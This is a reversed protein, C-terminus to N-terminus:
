KEKGVGDNFYKLILTENRKKNVVQHPHTYYSSYIKLDKNTKFDLIDQQTTSAPIVNMVKPADKTAPTDLKDSNASRVFPINRKKLEKMIKSNFKGKGIGHVSTPTRSVPQISAIYDYFSDIQNIADEAKPDLHLGYSIGPRPFMKILDPIHTM